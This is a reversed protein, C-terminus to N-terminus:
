NSSYNEIQQTISAVVESKDMGDVTVQIEAQHYLSLRSELITRLRDQWNDAELLPRRKRSHELRQILNEPSSHLYIVIGLRKLEDWNSPRLILGGGTAIVNKSPQMGKLVSTEYDRFAEEGYINFIQNIPRGFKYQIIQDTDLFERDSTEALLRGVTSKGSGMMGILIWSRTEM